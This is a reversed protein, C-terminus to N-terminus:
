WSCRDNVEILSYFNTCEKTQETVYTIVSHHSGRYVIIKPTTLTSFPKLVMLLNAEPLQFIFGARGSCSSSQVVEGSAIVQRFFDSVSPIWECSQWNKFAYLLHKTSDSNFDEKKLIYKFVLNELAFNLHLLAMSASLDLHQLSVPLSAWVWALNSPSLLLMTLSPLAPCGLNQLIINKMPNVLTATRVRGRKRWYHSPTTISFISIPM